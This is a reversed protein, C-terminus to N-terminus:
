SCVNVFINYKSNTKHITYNWWINTYFYNIYICKEYPSIYIGLQNFKCLLVNSYIYIYSIYKKEQLQYM